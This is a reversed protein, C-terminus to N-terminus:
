FKFYIFSKYAGNAISMLCILLVLLSAIVKASELILDGKKLLFDAAKIKQFMKQVIGSCLIGVLLVM